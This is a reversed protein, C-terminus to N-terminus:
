YGHKRARTHGLHRAVAVLALTDRECYARLDKRLQARCEEPTDAALIKLYAQGAANGDQVAGLGEYDLEPAITPLVHKISWSGQMDPHYYHKRTLPLLDFLRDTIAQLPGALDPFRTAAERLIRAEYSGYCLIPGKGGLKRILSEAFARMPPDGGDYLFDLHKLEGSASEVHCSWQFPLAEYPRTAPWFPVPFQITEFDLYFRPYRLERLENRADSSLTPANRVVAEFVRKQDHTKLRDVPVDKIELYGEALLEWALDGARPLTWVPHEVEEPWCFDQFPCPYPDMCHPGIAIKPPRKASLLRVFRKVMAPVAQEWEAINRTVDVTTFLGSYDGNGPYIFDSRICDIGMKGLRLGAKKLVFSQIAVDLLHEPKLETASKVETLHFTGQRTRELRDCRVSVGGASFAPEFLTLPGRKALHKQTEALAQAMPGGEGVLIGAPHLSRAVETVRQGWDFRLERGLSAGPLAGGNVELYLRKECQDGALIRSKTLRQNKLPKM